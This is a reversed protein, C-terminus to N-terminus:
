ITAARIDALQLELEERVADGAANAASEASEASEAAWAATATARAASAANAAAWAAAEAADGAANAATARAARMAAAEAAQETCDAGSLWAAAWSEVAAVGCRLAYTEVARRVIREVAIPVHSGAQLTAWIRDAAPIDLDLIDVVSLRERGAWL